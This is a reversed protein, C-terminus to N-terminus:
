HLVYKKKNRIGLSCHGCVMSTNFQAKNIRCIMCNVPHSATYEFGQVDEKQCIM